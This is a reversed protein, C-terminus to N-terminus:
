EKESVRSLLSYNPGKLICRRYSLNFCLIICALCARMVYLFRQSVLLYPQERECMGKVDEIGSFLSM